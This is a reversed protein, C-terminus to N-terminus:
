WDLHSASAYSRGGFRAGSEVRVDAQARRGWGLGVAEGQGVARGGFDAHAQVRSRSRATGFYADALSESEALSRGGRLGIAEADSRSVARGYHGIATSRSIAEGRGRALANGHSLALGRVSGALSDVHSWAGRGHADSRARSIARGGDTVAISTGTAFGGNLGSGSIRADARGGGSAASEAHLQVRGVGSARATAVGGDTYSRATVQALTQSASLTAIFLASLTTVRIMIVRRAPFPFGFLFPDITTDNAM